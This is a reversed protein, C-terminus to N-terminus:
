SSKGVPVALVPCRAQQVVRETTSGRIADLFGQHGATAMVILDARRDEAMALIEDVPDGPRTILRSKWPFEAPLEVVPPKKGAHVITLESSAQGFDDMIQLVNGVANHADPQHDVPMLLHDMTAQGSELSVFGSSGHPVFLTPTHAKRALPQAVSRSLWVPFGKTRHTALVILDIDRHDRFKLIANLVQGAADIKEVDVALEDFVASQPASPPLMKWRELTERVGPFDEWQHDQHRNGGVHLISLRAQHLLAIKLAHAFAHMSEQSFDTPHLIGMPSPKRSRHPM